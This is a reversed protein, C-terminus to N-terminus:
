RISWVATPGDLKLVSRGFRKEMGDTPFIRMRIERIGRMNETAPVTSLSFDQGHFTVKGGAQKEMRHGLELCLESLNNATALDVAVTLGIVDNLVPGKTPPLVERYRKLIDKRRVGRNTEKPLPNWRRLFEPHYEMLWSSMGSEYPLHKTTAMYFWPVQNNKYLRTIPQPLLAISAGPTERLREIDGSRDVGFAIGSDGVCPRPSSAVDFFEFYTNTGYSYLGTYTEDTRVTTRKENPAFRTRLFNSQEIAAYTPSDLVIYFHNLFVPPLPAKRIAAAIPEESLSSTRLVLEKKLAKELDSITSIQRGAL